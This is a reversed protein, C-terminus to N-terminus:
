KKQIYKVNVASWGGDTRTCFAWVEGPYTQLFDVVGQQVTLDGRTWTIRDGPAYPPVEVATVPEIALEEVSQLAAVIGPKHERIIQLWRSVAGQDGSAKIKGGASLALRVGDAAVQEIIAAPTM